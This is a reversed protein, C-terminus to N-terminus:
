LLPKRSPRTGSGSSWLLTQSGGQSWPSYLPVNLDPRALAAPNVVACNCSGSKQCRQWCFRMDPRTDKQGPRHPRLLLLPASNGGTLDAGLPLACFHLGGVLCPCQCLDTRLSQPLDFYTTMPCRLPLRSAAIDARCMELWVQSTAEWVISTWHHGM